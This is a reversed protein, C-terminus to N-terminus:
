FWGQPYGDASRAPVPVMTETKKKAINSHWSFRWNLSNLFCCILEYTGGLFNSFKVLSASIIDERQPPALQRSSSGDGPLLITLWTWCKVGFILLDTQITLSWNTIWAYTLTNCTQLTRGLLPVVLRRSNRNIGISWMGKLNVLSVQRM